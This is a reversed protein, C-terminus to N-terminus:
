WQVGAYIVPGSLKLDVDLPVQDYTGKAQIYRWGGGAFLFEYRLLATLEADVFRANINGFDWKSGTVAGRLQLFSAPNVELFAGLLPMGTQLDKATSGVLSSSARANFDMYQGGIMLGGHVTEPGLNLRAFGRVFDADLRTAVDANVPYELEHFRIVRSITHQASMNIRFYEAGVQFLSGLILRAGPVGERGGYGLDDQLDVKTGALGDVGIAASGSPQMFWYYGEIDLLARAAPPAAAALLLLLVLAKKMQETRERPLAAALMPRRRGTILKIEPGRRSKIGGGAARRASRPAPM